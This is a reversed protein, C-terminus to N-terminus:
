ILTKRLSLLSMIPEIRYTQNVQKGNQYQDILKIFDNNNM